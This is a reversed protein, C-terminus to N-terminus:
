KMVVFKKVTVFDGAEMRYFYVGSSLNGANFKIKYYGPEKIENVLTLLERGLVDYIKLTVFGLNSIGFELNTVPNFPNPYNQSLEYKDPIGISVEEALEYYEFNGNFDIQKLRYKYKGTTLNKDTFSYNLPESITGHGSVFGAKVWQNETSSREIDFGSNNLEEATSWNLTVNRGNIVSTFEALKVPLPYDVLVIKSCIISGNASLNIRFQGSKSGSNIYVSDNSINSVISAETSDFNILGFSVNQLSETFYLNTTNVDTIIPGTICDSTLSDINRYLILTNYDKIVALDVDGDNDFDAPSIKPIYWFSFNEGRIFNGLGDNIYLEGEMSTVFDLSGDGNFDAPYPKGIFWVSGSTVFEANGTNTLKTDYLLIDEDIDGDYNFPTIECQELINHNGGIRGSTITEKSFNGAGDNRFLEVYRCGFFIELTEFSTHHVELIDLDGDGDMDDIEFEAQPYWYEECNHVVPITDTMTFYGNDNRIISMDFFMNRAMDPDGDGDFDGAKGISGSSVTSLNFMGTGDNLYVKILDGEASFAIDLSRNLDFDNLIFSSTGGPIQSFYSFHGEGNNKYIKIDQQGTIIDIDGDGDIDGSEVNEASGITDSIQFRGSGGTASTIFSFIFPTLSANNESMIGSKLLVFVKEGTKFDIAPDITLTRLTADYTLAGPIVGSYKGNVIINEANLTTANMNQTFVINIDSSKNVSVSNMVPSVNLIYPSLGTMQWYVIATDSVNATSAIVTDYGPLEGTYSYWVMGITDTLEVSSDSHIGKVVYKVEVGEMPIEYQSLVFTGIRIQDMQFVTTDHPTLSITQVEDAAGFFGYVSPDSEILLDSVGDTNIDGYALNNLGYNLNFSRMSLGTTRGFFVLTGQYNSGTAALDDYGDNNLDGADTLVYGLGNGGQFEWNPELSLGYGSGLYLFIKGNWGSGVVLDDFGDSNIDGNACVSSGFGDYITTEKIHFDNPQFYMRYGSGYFGAVGNFSGVILDDFGDGNVDGNMSASIGLNQFGSTDSACVAWSPSVNSLGYASGLYVYGGVLFSDVIDQAYVFIDSFGDMNVDGSSIVCGFCYVNNSTPSYAIWDASDQLGSQSGYFAEVKNGSGQIVLDSFGDNNVDGRCDLTNGFMGDRTIVMDAALSPGSSSGWYIFVHGGVFPDTPAGIAVDNFGDGNIDGSSLGFGFRMHHDAHVEWDPTNSIPDVTVPYQADKDIIRISFQRDNQKDFYANLIKANADWAKLSSYHMKGSGDKKSRFTVAEKSVNMELNTRVNMILKLNDDGSPKEKVIFDQRMGEKSNTYDIRINENELSVKNGAAFPKSKNIVLEYNNIQLEVSWDENAKYKKDTERLTKDNVDFLPIKTQMTKATFGNNHYTFLINNARNHSQYSKLEESYSINYEEKLINDVAASYWNQDINNMGADPKAFNPNVNISHETPIYEPCTLSLPNVPDALSPQEKYSDRFAIISLLILSVLLIIHKM